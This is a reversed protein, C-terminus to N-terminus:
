PGYLNFNTFTYNESPAWNGFIMGMQGKMTVNDTISDVKTGNIYFDQQVGSCVVKLRNYDTAPKVAQSFVQPHIGREVGGGGRTIYYTQNESVSFRYYQGSTDLRYIVGMLSGEAAGIRRVDVEVTFDSLDQTTKPNLVIVNNHGQSWVNYSDQGYYGGKTSDAKYVYWGSKPDTFDDHFVLKGSGASATPAACGPILGALLVLATLLVSLGYKSTKM